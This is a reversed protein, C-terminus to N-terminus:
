SNKKSNAKALFRNVEIIARQHKGEGIKDCEDYAKVSFEIMRGQVDVVEAIVRVKMGVPTAAMHSVDVKTGVTDFGEPLGGKVANMAANEMLGIMVPTALVEVGGSGFHIATDHNEVFKEIEYSMGKFVNYEM